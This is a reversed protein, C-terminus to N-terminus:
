DVAKIVLIVIAVILFVVLLQEVDRSLGAPPDSRLAEARTALDRLEADSLTAAASRVQRLDAHLSAAATVAERSSLLDEVAALDARRVDAAAALRASTEDRSVLHDDSFARNGCALAALALIVVRTRM